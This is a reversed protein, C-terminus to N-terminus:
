CHRWPGARRCGAATPPPRLQQAYVGVRGCAGALRSPSRRSTRGRGHGLGRSGRRGAAKIGALRLRAAGATASPLSPLGCHQEPLAHAWDWPGRSSRAAALTSCLSEHLCGSRVRVRVCASPCTLLCTCVPLCAHTGVCGQVGWSAHGAPSSQAAEGPFSASLPFIWVLNGPEVNHGPGPDRPSCLLPLCTMATVACCLGTPMRALPSEREHKTHLAPGPESLLHFQSGRAPSPSSMPAPLPHSGRPSVPLSTQSRCSAARHLGQLHHCSQGQGQGRGRGWTGRPLDPCEGKGGAQAGACHGQLFPSLEKARGPAWVHWSLQALAGQTALAHCPGWPLVM